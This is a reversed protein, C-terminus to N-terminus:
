QIQSFCIHEIFLNLILKYNLLSYSIKFGMSFVIELIKLFCSFLNHYKTLILVM